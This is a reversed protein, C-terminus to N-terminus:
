PSNLTVTLITAHKRLAENNTKEKAGRNIIVRVNVSRIKLRFVRIKM